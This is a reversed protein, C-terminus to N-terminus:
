RRGGLAIRMPEGLLAHAARDAADTLTSDFRVRLEVAAPLVSTSIWSSQWQQRTVVSGLYRVEFGAADPALAVVMPAGRARFPTLEAVLGRTGASDRQMHIRVRTGAEAVSTRATTIFALDAGATDRWGAIAGRFEADGETTLRSQSVWARLTGRVAAAASISEVGRRSQQDTLFGLVTAGTALAAGAVTLAVVVELLTM